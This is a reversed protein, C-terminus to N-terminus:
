RRLHKLAPSSVVSIVLSMFEVFVRRLLLRYRVFLFFTNCFSFLNVLIEELKQMFKDLTSRAVM